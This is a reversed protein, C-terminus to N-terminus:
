DVSADFPFMEEYGVVASHQSYMDAIVSTEM